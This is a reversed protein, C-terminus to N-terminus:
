GWKVNTIVAFLCGNRTSPPWGTGTVSIKPMDCSVMASVGNVTCRVGNTLKEIKVSYKKGAIWGCHIKPEAVFGTESYVKMKLASANYCNLRLSMTGPKPNGGNWGSSNEGSCMYAVVDETSPDGNRKPVIDFELTNCVQELPKKDPMVVYKDPVPVPVPEGGSEPKFVRVIWAVLKKFWNM